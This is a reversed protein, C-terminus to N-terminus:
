RCGPMNPYLTDYTDTTIAFEYSYSELLSAGASPELQVREVIGADRFGAAYCLRGVYRYVDAESCPPDAGGAREDESPSQRTESRWCFQGCVLGSDRGIGSHLLPFLLAESCGRCGCKNQLNVIQYYLCRTNIHIQRHEQHRMKEMLSAYFM